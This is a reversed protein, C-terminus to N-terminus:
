LIVTIPSGTMILMRKENVFVSISDGSKFGLEQLWKGKLRIEPVRDYNRGVKVNAYYVKLPRKAKKPTQPVIIQM